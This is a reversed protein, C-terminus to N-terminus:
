GFTLLCAVCYCCCYYHDEKEREKERERICVSELYLGSVGSEDAHHHRGGGLTFETFIAASRQVHITSQQSTVRSSSKCLQLILVLNQKKAVLPFTKASSLGLFFPSSSFGSKKKAFGLTKKQAFTWWVYNKSLFFSM